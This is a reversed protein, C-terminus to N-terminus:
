ASRARLRRGEGFLVKPIERVAARFPGRDGTARALVLAGHISMIAQAARRGAEEEPQGAERAIATYADRWAQYIESVRRSLRAPGGALSLSDLVCGRSGGEYFAEIQEGSKQMRKGLAADGLLPALIEEGFRQAVHELVALAMEEKGDPFRHYLSARELGTADRLRSLTAGEYGHDRFVALLRELLEEENVKRPPM